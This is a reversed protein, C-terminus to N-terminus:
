IRAGGFVQAQDLSTTTDSWYSDGPGLAHSQPGVAFSDILAGRAPAVACILVALAAILSSIHKTKM